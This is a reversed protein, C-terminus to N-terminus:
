PGYLTLGFTVTLFVSMQKRSVAEAPCYNGGGCGSVVGRRVLEEIWPCFPSSAPVDDFLPAGCAPPVFIPDSARLVFVALQERTVLANPCFRGGGCGAAVGRRALDEIWPCFPSAAPVDNFVSVGCAPPVYGSGERAVLVFVAMQERTTPSAACYTTTTCGATVRAHLVTEVFRYFASSRPVDAFSEGVHVTWNRTAGLAAPVIEEHLTADWHAAPRTAPVTIGIAYCDGTAACTGTAGSAVAGYSATADPISYAPNAPAGPGTFTATGDFTQATASANLWAVAVAVTEGAELVGNGDSTSGATPDVALAAPMLGGAYRQAFVGDVSTSSGQTSYWTVVLNGAPDSAVSSYLQQGTTYSNVQFAAGGAGAGDFRRGFVGIGNADYTQWTVVFGGDAAVSVDAAGVFAPPGSVLLEVGVPVGAADFRRAGITADSASQWTVVFSGDRRRAVHPRRQSTTGLPFRTGLLSGAADFRQGSAPATPQGDKWVVVFNGAADIGVSPSESPAGPTNVSLDGGLPTGASDFRRAFISSDKWAVVFAGSPAVAIAPTKPLVGGANVRFESGRRAGTVDFRQGFVGRTTGTGDARLSRWVVTFNGADDAAVAPDFEHDVTATSVVFEPAVPRGGADFLRGRIQPPGPQVQRAWVVVFRGDPLAATARPNAELSEVPLRAAGQDVRIENGARTQAAASGGVGLLAIVVAARAISM